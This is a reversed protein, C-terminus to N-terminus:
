EYKVSSHSNNDSISAHVGGTVATSIHDTWWSFFDDVARSVFGANDRTRKIGDLKEIRRRAEEADKKSISEDRELKALITRSKQALIDPTNEANKVKIAIDALDKNAINLEKRSLAEAAQANQNYTEAQMRKINAQMEKAVFPVKAENIAANSDNLRALAKAQLVAAENYNGESELKYVNKVMEQLELSERKYGFVQIIGNKIEQYERLSDNLEKRSLIEEVENAMKDITAQNVRSDSLNKVLGGFDRMLESSMGQPIGVPSASGGLPSGHIQPPPAIAPNASSGQVLQASNAAPNFGGALSRAAMQAPSNYQQQNKWQNFQIDAQQQMLVPSNKMYDAVQQAYMKQSFDRNLQNEHSQWAMQERAMSEQHVMDRGHRTLGTSDMFTEYPSFALNAASDIISGM